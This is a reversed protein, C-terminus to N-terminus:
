HQNRKPFKINMLGRLNKVGEERILLLQINGLHRIIETRTALQLYIYQRHTICINKELRKM